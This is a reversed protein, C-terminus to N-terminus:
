DDKKSVLAEKIRQYLAQRQLRIREEAEEVSSNEPPLEDFLEYVAWIFELFEGGHQDKGTKADQKKHCYDWVEIKGKTPLMAKSWIKALDRILEPGATKVGHGKEWKQIQKIWLRANNVIEKWPMSDVEDELCHRAGLYSKAYRRVLDPDAKELNIRTYPKAYKLMAKTAEIARSLGNKVEWGYHSDYYGDWVKYRSVMGQLIEAAELIEVAQRLSSARNQFEKHLYYKDRYEYFAELIDERWRKKGMPSPFNELAKKTYFPMDRYPNGKFSPYNGGVQDEADELEMFKSPM